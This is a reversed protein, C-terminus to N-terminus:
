LLLCACVCSPVQESHLRVSTQHGAERQEDGQHRRHQRSDGRGCRKGRDQLLRRACGLVVPGLDCRQPKGIGSIGTAPPESERGTALFANRQGGHGPLRIRRGNGGAPDRRFVPCPPVLERLVPGLGHREHGSGGGRGVGGLGGAQDVAAGLRDGPDGLGVLLADGCHRPQSGLPVRIGHGEAEGLYVSHSVAGARREPDGVQHPPWDCALDHIAIRFPAQERDWGALGDGRWDSRCRCGGDGDGDGRRGWRGVAGVVVIEGPLPLDQLNELVLLSLLGTAEHLERLVPGTVCPVDDLDLTAVVVARTGALGSRNPDVGLAAGHGGRIVHGVQGSRWGRGRRGSRCLRRGGCAALGGSLDIQRRARAVARLDCLNKEVFVNLVIVHARESVPKALEAFGVFVAPLIPALCLPVEHSAVVRVRDAVPDNLDFAFGVVLGANPAGLGSVRGDPERVANLLLSFSWPPPLSV